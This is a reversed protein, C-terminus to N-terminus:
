GYCLEQLKAQIARLKELEAVIEAKYLYAIRLYHIRDNVLDLLLKYDDKTLEPM